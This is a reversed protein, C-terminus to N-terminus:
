PFLCVESSWPVGDKGAQNYVQRSHRNRLHSKGWKGQDQFEGGGVVLVM